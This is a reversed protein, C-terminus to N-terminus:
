HSVTIVEDGPGVGAARLGLELASIGNDLGVCERTECFAAFEEEFATVEEGLIFHCNDLVRAVAADLEGRLAAMQAKLDLFPVSMAKREKNPPPKPRAARRDKATISASGAWVRPLCMGIAGMSLIM